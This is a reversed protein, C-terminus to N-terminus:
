SRRPLAAAHRAEPMAKADIGSSPAASTSPPSPSECKSRACLSPGHRPAVDVQAAGPQEARAGAVGRMGRHPRAAGVDHDHVELIERRGRSAVLRPASQSVSSDAHRADPATV